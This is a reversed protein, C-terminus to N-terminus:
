SVGDMAGNAGWSLASSGITLSESEPADEWYNVESAYEGALVLMPKDWACTRPWDLHETPSQLHSIMNDIFNKYNPLFISLNRYQPNKPDSDVYGGVQSMFGHIYPAIIKWAGGNGGPFNDDGPGVPSEFDAPSHLLKLANPFVKAGRELWYKWTANSWGYKDGSPEWGAYVVIRFLKQARPQSYLADLQDMRPDVTKSPDGTGPNGDWGDPKCFHVPAIGADWLEQMRDLYIDFEAQTPVNPTSPYQGHYSNVRVLQGTPACTYKRISKPGYNDIMRKRDTDSYFEYFAMALINDDQDPRPGFPLNLRATFLSGRRLYTALDDFSLQSPDFGPTSLSPLLIDNPNWSPTGLLIYQNIPKCSFSPSQYDLFGNARARLYTNQPASFKYSIQGNSDATRWVGEIWDVQAGPIPNGKDDRVIVIYENMNNPPNPKDHKGM